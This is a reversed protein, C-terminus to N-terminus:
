KRDALLSQQRRLCQWCPIVALVNVAAAVPFVCCHAERGNTLIVGVQLPPISATSGNKYIENM